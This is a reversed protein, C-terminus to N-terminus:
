VGRRILAGEHMSAGSLTMHADFAAYRVIKCGLVGQTVAYSVIKCRLVGKTVMKAHRIMLLMIGPYQGSRTTILQQLLLLLPPPPLLLTVSAFVEVGEM